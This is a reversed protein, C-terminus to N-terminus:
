SPSLAPLRALDALRKRVLVLLALAEFWGVVKVVMRRAHRVLKGPISFLVFRLRKARAQRLTGALTLAKIAELVNHTLVNLRFYAANVGVHKSPIVGVGLDCALARHVHEVTGAKGWYWRILEAGDEERNTVIGFYKVESGDAFLHGQKPVARWVIYREPPHNKRWNPVSPVYPVDAWSRVFDETEDLPQWAEEGLAERAKKLAPTMDVGVAFEVGDAVLAGLFRHQYGASDSRVRVKKVWPPLMARARRYVGELDKGAPVNGERFADVVILSLEAWVGIVPQYGPVGLYTKAAEQKHSEYVKADVDLTAEEVGLKEAGGGGGAEPEGM